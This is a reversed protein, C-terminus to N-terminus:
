HRAAQLDPWGAMHVVFLAHRGACAAEGIKCPPAPAFLLFAGSTDKDLRWAPRPPSLAMSCVSKQALTRDSMGASKAPGDCSISLRVHCPFCLVRSWKHHAPHLHTSFISCGVGSELPCPHFRQDSMQPCMREGRRLPRTGGSKGDGSRFVSPLPRPLNSDSCSSPLGCIRARLDRMLAGLERRLCLGLLHGGLGGGGGGGREGGRGGPGARPPGWWPAGEEKGQRAQQAWEVSGLTASLLPAGTLAESAHM